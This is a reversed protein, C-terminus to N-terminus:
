KYIEKIDETVSFRYETKCPLLFIRASLGLFSHCLLILNLINLQKIYAFEVLRQLETTTKYHHLEFAQKLDSTQQEM